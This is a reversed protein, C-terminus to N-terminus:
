SFDVANQTTSEKTYTILVLEDGVSPSGKRAASVVLDNAQM